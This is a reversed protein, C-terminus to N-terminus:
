MMTFLKCIWCFREECAARNGLKLSVLIEDGRKRRVGKGEDGMTWTRGSTRGFLVSNKKAIARVEVLESESTQVVNIHGSEGRWQFCIVDDLM